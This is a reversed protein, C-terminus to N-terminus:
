FHRGDQKEKLNFFLVNVFIVFIELHGVTLRLIAYERLRAASVFYM